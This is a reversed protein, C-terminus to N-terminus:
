RCALPWPSTMVITVGHRNDDTMSTKRFAPAFTQAACALLAAAHDKLRASIRHRRPGPMPGVPLRPAFAGGKTVRM